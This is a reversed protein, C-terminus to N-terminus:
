GALLAPTALMMRRPPADPVGNTCTYNGSKCLSTKSSGGGGFRAYYCAYDGINCGMVEFTRDPIAAATSGAMALTLVILVAGVVLAVITRLLRATM